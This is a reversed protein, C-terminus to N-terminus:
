KIRVEVSSYFNVDFYDVMSDSNDRNYKGVIKKAKEIADSVLKTYRDPANFSFEHPNEIDWKIREPNLHAQGSPIAKLRVGMSQGGSFRDINVSWKWGGKTSYNERLEKRVLKAIDKIDLHSTEDFKDGKTENEPDCYAPMYSQVPAVVAVERGLKTRSFPFEIITATNM